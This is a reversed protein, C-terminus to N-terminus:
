NRDEKDRMGCLRKMLKLVKSWDAKQEPCPTIRELAQSLAECAQSPSEDQFLAEALGLHNESFGPDLSVARRYHTLAKDLDGISVPPEPARLYLEGLMRDPGAHDLHPNLRSASLAEREIVPVLKLGRLPDNEAEIGALYAALYHATGNQPDQDVAKEAWKRGSVAHALRTEGASDGRALVAYCRAALLAAQPNVDWQRELRDAEDVTCPAWLGTKEKSPSELRDGFSACATVLATLILFLKLRLVVGRKERKGYRYFRKM